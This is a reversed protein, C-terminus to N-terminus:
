YGMIHMYFYDPDSPVDLKNLFLITCETLTAKEEMRYNLTNTSVHSFFPFVESLLKLDEYELKYKGISLRTIKTLGGSNKSIKPDNPDTTDIEVFMIVYDNPYWSRILTKINRFDFSHFYNVSKGREFKSVNTSIRDRYYITENAIYESKLRAFSAYELAEQTTNRTSTINQSNSRIFLFILCFLFIINIPPKM